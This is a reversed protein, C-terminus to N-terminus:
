EEDGYGGGGFGGRPFPFISLIYSLFDGIGGAAPPPFFVARVAAGAAPDVGELATILDWLIGGARPLWLDPIGPYGHGAQGAPIAAFAENAAILGDLGRAFAGALGTLGSRHFRRGRLIEIEIDSEGMGGGGWNLTLRHIAYPIAIAIGHAAAGAGYVTDLTRAAIIHHAELRSRLGRGDRGFDFFGPAAAPFDRDGDEIDGYRAILWPACRINHALINEYTVHYNQHPTVGFNFVRFGGRIMNTNLIVAKGTTATKLEDGEILNKAATWGKGQKWFPHEATTPVQNQTTDLLYLSHSMRHMTHYVTGVTTENTNMNCSLVSDGVQITEIPAYTGNGLAIMTGAAFSSCQATGSGGSGLGGLNFLSNAREEVNRLLQGIDEGFDIVNEFLKGFFENAIREFNKSSFAGGGKSNSLLNGAVMRVVSLAIVAFVVTVIVLPIILEPALVPALAVIGRGDPDVDSEPNSLTYLYPNSTQKLPDPSIFQGIQPDYYRAGFYYIGVQQGSTDIGVYDYEKGQFKERFIDVGRTSSLDLEGYPLYSYSTIQNGQENHISVVNQHADTDFFYLGEVPYGAGNPGPSLQAHALTTNNVVAAILLYVLKKKLAFSMNEHLKNLAWNLPYIMPHLVSSQMIKLINGLSFINVM